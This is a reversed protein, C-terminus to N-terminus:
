VVARVRRVIRARGLVRARGIRGFHRSDRSVGKNDGEVWYATGREDKKVSSIRKLLVRGASEPDEVLVVDLEQLPRWLLSIRDLLVFDGEGCAPEMSKEQVRFYM